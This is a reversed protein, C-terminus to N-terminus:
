DSLTIAKPGTLGDFEPLGKGASVGPTIIRPGTGDDYLRYGCNHHEPCPETTQIVPGAVGTDSYGSTVIGQRGFPIFVSEVGPTTSYVVGSRQTGTGHNHIAIRRRRDVFAADGHKHRHFYKGHGKKSYRKGHGLSGSKRYGLRKKAAHKRSPKSYARKYHRTGGLIVGSRKADAQAVTVISLPGAQTFVIGTAIAAAWLCAKNFSKYVSSFM